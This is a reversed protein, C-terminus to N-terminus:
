REQGGRRIQLVMGHMFGLALATAHAAAYQAQQEGLLDTFLIWAPSGSSSYFSAFIVAPLIAAAAIILYIAFHRAVHMGIGLALVYIVAFLLIVPLM